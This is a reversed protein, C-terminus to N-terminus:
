WEFQINSHFSNILIKKLYVQADQKKEYQITTWTRESKFLLMMMMKNNSWEKPKKLHRIIFLIILQFRLKIRRSLKRESSSKMLIDYLLVFQNYWKLCLVFCFLVFFGSMRNNSSRVPHVKVTFIVPWYITTVIRCFLYNPHIVLGISSMVMKWYM